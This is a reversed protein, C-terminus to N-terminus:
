ERDAKRRRPEGRFSALSSRKGRLLDRLTQRTITNSVTLVHDPNDRFFNRLYELTQEKVDGRPVLAFAPEVFDTTKSM